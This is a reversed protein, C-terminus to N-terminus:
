APQDFVQRLGSLMWADDRSTEIMTSRCSLSEVLEVADGSLLADSGGSGPQVSVTDTIEIQMSLEPDTADIGLSGRRSEGMTLSFAPGLGAVYALIGAVEDSEVTAEIGLPLLIDREHIWADWLAHLLMADLPLHGVPTEALLPWQSDAISAATSALGTTSAHFRELLVAPELEGISDNIQPPTAVPDFGALYESPEGALGAALSAIWFGHTSDLHTIVDAVSWGACRSPSSWAEEDLSSLIDFLRTSQRASPIRVDGLDIDITLIPPSGYRPTLEM